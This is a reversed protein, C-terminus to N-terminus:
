YRKALNGLTRLNEKIKPHWVNGCNLRLFNRYQTTASFLIGPSFSIKKAISKRYLEVADIKKPLEVWLVFGGQPLSVRTGDPFHSLVEQATKHVQIACHLRLKKLNREYSNSAVYRAIIKQSLTGSAMTTSLQLRRLEKYFRGPAIWGIRLGPSVTKSFSSCTIILGSDDYARLPKPRAGQFPLEAYIDDEITPVGHHVLLKAVEKKGSDSMASGLPNSFNPMLVAAAVKHKKLAKRLQEIDIGFTPHSRVELVKLGLGEMAQLTGFFLPSETIVTDGPKCTARLALSISEAGGNTALIEEVPVHCGADALLKSIQRRYDFAGPSLEYTSSIHPFERLVQRTLQNIHETPYLEPALYAAGFQVFDRNKSSDILIGLLDPIKADIPINTGQSVRPLRDEQRSLVYFGSRPKTALLGKRELLEYAALVTNISLAKKKSMARVSPIKEGVELLGERSQRELEDALQEYKKM